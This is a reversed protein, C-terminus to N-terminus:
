KREEKAILWMVYDVPQMYNEIYDAMSVTKVSADKDLEFLYKFEFGLESLPRESLYWVTIDGYRSLIRVSQKVISEDEFGTIIYGM